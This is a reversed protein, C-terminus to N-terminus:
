IYSHTANGRVLSNAVLSSLSDVFAYKCFPRTNVSAVAGQHQQPIRPGCINIM